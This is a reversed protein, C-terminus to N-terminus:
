EEAPLVNVKVSTEFDNWKITVTQEGAEKFDAVISSIGRNKDGDVYEIAVTGNTAEWKVDVPKFIASFTKNKLVRTPVWSSMDFEEGVMAELPENNTNLAIAIDPYYQYGNLIMSRDDGWSMRLYAYVQFSYFGTAPEAILSDYKTTEKNNVKDNISKNSVMKLCDKKYVPNGAEDVVLNGKEDVEQAASKSSNFWYGRINLSGIKGGYLGDDWLCIYGYTASYDGQWGESYSGEFYYVMNHNDRKESTTVTKVEGTFEYSDQERMVVKEPKFTYDYEDAIKEIEPTIPNFGEGVVTNNLRRQMDAAILSSTLVAALAVVGCVSVKVIQPVNGKEIPMDATAEEENKYFGMFAATVACAAILILTILYFVNIGLNGGQYFVNNIYDAILNPILLVEKMLALAIMVIGAIHIFRYQPLVLVVAEVIFAAILFIGVIEPNAASYAMAGKYTAFFVIALILSILSAAAVLFYGVSKNKFFNLIKEM